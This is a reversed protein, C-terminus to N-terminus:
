SFFCIQGSMYETQFIYVLPIIIVNPLTIVYKFYNVAALEAVLSCFRCAGPNVKEEVGPQFKSSKTVIFPGEPIRPAADRYSSPMEPGSFKSAGHHDGSSFKKGPFESSSITSRM